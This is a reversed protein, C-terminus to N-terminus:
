ALAGVEARLANMEGEAESREGRADSEIVVPVYYNNKPSAQPSGSNSPPFFNM